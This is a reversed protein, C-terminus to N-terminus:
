RGATRARAAARRRGRAAVLAALRDLSALYAGLDGDPATIVTTGRGLVTDGTLLRAAGDDGRLLLSCSDATHGPTTM